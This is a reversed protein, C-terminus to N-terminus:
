CKLVFGICLSLDGNYFPSWESSSVDGKRLSSSLSIYIDRTPDACHDIEIPLNSIWDAIMVIDFNRLAGLLPWRSLIFLTM